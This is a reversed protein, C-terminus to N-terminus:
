KLSKIATKFGKLSVPIGIGAEETQFIIFMATTGSSLKKLLTDDATVQAYCAFSHCRLFKAHGVDTDDIKLGVGTPLLIGLPAFIRLVKKGDHFKQLYVTLGVNPRDEATVSQVAACVEKKAGAPKKCVIQWEGHQAKVTGEQAHAITIPFALTLTMTLTLTMAVAFTFAITATTKKSVSYTFQLTKLIERAKNLHPQNIPRNKPAHLM